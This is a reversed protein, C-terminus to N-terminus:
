FTYSVKMYAQKYSTEYEKEVENEATKYGIYLNCDDKFNYRLNSFMGVYATRSETEYDNYRLGNTISFENTFNFTLDANGIWYKNDATCDPPFGFYRKRQASVNYSLNDGIEGYVSIYIYDQPYIEGLDYFLSHGFNYCWSTSLWSIKWYSFNISLNDWTHLSNNCSEQGINGNLSVSYKQTSSFWFKMGANQECLEYDDNDIERNAWMGAGYKKFFKKDPNKELDVNMNISTYDKNFVQGMDAEIDRSATEGSVSWDFDNKDGYYGCSAAYGTVNNHDFDDKLSYVFKSWVTQNQRFEWSPNTIFVENHYDENMRNLLTMQLSVDKWKPKIALLNYFDDSNLVEDDETVEKDRASLVGYAFRETNGTLKVAYQPQMIHRSYFYTSGVGFVDLDEIFFYRNEDYSPAYKVNYNDSESDLPIDSFDPNLSIKVKTATTPNYSFDVGVNEPDYSDTKEKLDYKKIFYPTIRYNRNIAIKDEIVIDQATRFYDKGMSITGYPISYYEESENMYRTLIIKWHYPPDDFFRLDKFPIKMTCEWLSDSFVNEYKYHSNWNEELSMESNRIGDCSNGLPFSYFYYAYYNNVDTIIQIRVIDAEVWEDANALRGQDFTADIEAEFLMFLNEKDHWFWVDTQLPIERADDPDIRRFDSLHNSATKLETESYPITFARLAVAAFLLILLLYLKKM